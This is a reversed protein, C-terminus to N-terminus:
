WLPVESALQIIMKHLTRTERNLSHIYQLVFNASGDGEFGRRTVQVYRSWMNGYV